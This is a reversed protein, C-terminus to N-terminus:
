AVSFHCEGAVAAWHTGWAAEVGPQFRQGLAFDPRNRAVMFFRLKEQLGMSYLM